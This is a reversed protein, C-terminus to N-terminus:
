GEVEEAPATAKFQRMIGHRIAAEVAERPTDGVGLPRESDGLYLGVDGAETLCFVFPGRGERVQRELWAWPWSGM